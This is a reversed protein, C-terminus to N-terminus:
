KMGEVQALNEANKIVLWKIKEDKFRVKMPRSVSRNIPKMQTIKDISVKVDLRNVCIKKMEQLDHKVRTVHDDSDSM